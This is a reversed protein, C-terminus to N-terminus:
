VHEGVSQALEFPVPRPFWSPLQDFSDRMKMIGGFVELDGLGGVVFTLPSDADKTFFRISGFHQGIALADKLYQPNIAGSIGESYGIVSAVNEIRPFQGEILANGPQIFQPVGGEDNVMSGGNSMVDLTSKANCSKLADKKVTVIIEREAFGHQDRVVVYRHGDTAVVMVSGDDLPRINVGNLYYRIDGQAIFPFAAKVAMANIRAIMHPAENADAESPLGEISLQDERNM